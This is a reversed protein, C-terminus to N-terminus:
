WGKGLKKQAEKAKLFGWDLKQFTSKKFHFEVYFVGREMGDRGKAIELRYLGIGQSALHEKIKEGKEEVGDGSPEPLKNAVWRTYLDKGDISTYLIAADPTYAGRASGMIDSLDSGWKHSHSGSPKRAESIVIVPDDALADRIQKMQGIRWKDVELETPVAIRETVPWVQLYDIVVIARSCGTVHKVEEITQIASAANLFPSFSSDIIQLRHGLEFLEKEALVMAEDSSKEFLLDRYSIGSLYCLIRRFIEEASMELSFMVFCASPENRLVDIGLQTAFATKGVNPAAAILILKRLGLLKEDLIPLTKQCLGLYNQHRYKAIFARAGRLREEMGILSFKTAVQKKIARLEQELLSIASLAGRSSELPRAQIELLKRKAFDEQILGVYEEIYGSTGAYQALSVVYQAGGATELLKERMLCECLIHTDVSKKELYCRKLFRFILRHEEFLFFLEELIAAAYDFHERKSLMCGLVMRENCKVSEERSTQM